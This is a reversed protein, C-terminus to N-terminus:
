DFLRKELKPFMAQSVRKATEQTAQNVNQPRERVIDKNSRLNRITKEDVGYEQAISQMLPPKPKDFLAIIEMRQRDNLRPGKGKAKWCTALENESHFPLKSAGFHCM